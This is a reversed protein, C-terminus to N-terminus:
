RYHLQLTDSRLFNTSCSRSIRPVQTLYVMGERGKNEPVRLNATPDNTVYVLKAFHPFADLWEVNDGLQSAVVMAVPTSKKAPTAHVSAHESYVYPSTCCLGYSFKFLLCATLLAAVLLWRLRRPHRGVVTPWSQM